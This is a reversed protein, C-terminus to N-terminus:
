EKSFIGIKEQQKKGEIKLTYNKPEPVICYQTLLNMTYHINQDSM